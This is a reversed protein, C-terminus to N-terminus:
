RHRGSALVGAQGAAYLLERRVGTPSLVAMIELVRACVGTRDGARVAQVSLLVTRALSPPYPQRDDRTLSVDAPTAQLHDLYPAYGGYQGAIVPAALALALPLHGLATAVTAAGVEDDLGTRGALFASAEAASLM